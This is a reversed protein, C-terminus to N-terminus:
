KCRHVHGRSHGDAVTVPAMPMLLEQPKEIVDFVMKGGPQVYMQNHVVVARVLHRLHSGPQRSMRAVMRMVRWGASTPQVQHFSQKGFEGLATNTAAAMGANSRQLFGHKGVQVLSIFIRRREYPSGVGIQNQSLDASKAFPNRARSVLRNWCIAKDRLSM